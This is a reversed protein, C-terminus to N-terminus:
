KEEPSFYHISLDHSSAFRSAPTFPVLFNPIDAWIAASASPMFWLHNLRPIPIDALCLLSLRKGLLMDLRQFAWFTAGTCLMGESVGSLELCPACSECSLMCFLCPTKDGFTGSFLHLNTKRSRDIPCSQLSIVRPSEIGPAPHHRSTIVGPVGRIFSVSGPADLDALAPVLESVEQGVHSISRFAIQDSSKIMIFIVMWIVALPFSHWLAVQTFMNDIIIPVTITMVRFVRRDIELYGAQASMPTGNIGLLDVAYVTSGFNFDGSIAAMFDTTAAMVEPDIMDYPEKTMSTYIRVSMQLIGTTEAQGSLEPLPSILQARIACSVGNGPADKPEHQNVSDFRGTAMAYSVLKDLVANIAADNFNAPTTL